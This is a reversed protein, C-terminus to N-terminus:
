VGGLEGYLGLFYVQIREGSYAIGDHYFDYLDGGVNAYIDGLGASAQTESAYYSSGYASAGELGYDSM